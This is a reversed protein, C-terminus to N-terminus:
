HEDKLISESRLTVPGLLGPFLPKHKGTYFKQVNTKTLRKEPPLQADGILRNPWLNLSLQMGLPDAEQLAFKLHKRWKPSMFAPGDPALTGGMGADFVMAGAIGQKKMAELDATIGPKSVNSDLWWWYTWPKASDPPTQFGEELSVANATGLLTGFIVVAILERIKM